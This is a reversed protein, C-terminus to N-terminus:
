PCDQLGDRGYPEEGRDEPLMETWPPEPPTMATGSM